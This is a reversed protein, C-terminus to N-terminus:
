AVLNMLLMAHPAAARRERWLVPGLSPLEGELTRVVKDPKRVGYWWSSWESIWKFALTRQMNKKDRERRSAASMEDM